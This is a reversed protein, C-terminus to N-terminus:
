HPEFPQSALLLWEDQRITSFKFSPFAQIVADRQKALIGSLLLIAGPSCPNEIVRALEILTVALINAIVVDAKIASGIEDATIIELRDLVGNALANERTADIARTDIDTAIAHDAGLKLSAIALIGSGCGFDLVTSGNLPLDALHRLCLATTAHSGTGFALGPDLVINVADTRPPTCWSPCIWLDPTIEIPKFNKLFAREWDCDDVLDISIDEPNIKFTAQLADIAPQLATDAEFLAMLRTVSWLELRPDAVDFRDDGDEAVASVSLAGFAELLEIAANACEGPLRIGLQQWTVSNLM